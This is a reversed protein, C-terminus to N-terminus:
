SPHLVPVSLQAAGQIVGERRCLIVSYIHILIYWYSMIYLSTHVQNDLVIWECIHSLLGERCWPAVQTTKVVFSSLDSQVSGGGDEKLCLIVPPINNKECMERYTSYHTAAECRIHRCLTTMTSTISYFKRYLIILVPHLSLSPTCVTLLLVTRM